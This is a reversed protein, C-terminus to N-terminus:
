SYVKKEQKLLMSAFEGVSQEADTEYLCSNFWFIQQQFVHLNMWIMVTYTIKGGRSQPEGTFQLVYYVCLDGSM